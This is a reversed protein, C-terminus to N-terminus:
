AGASHLQLGAGIRPSQVSLRASVTAGPPLGGISTRSNIADAWRGNAESRPSGRSECRLKRSPLSASLPAGYVAVADAAP